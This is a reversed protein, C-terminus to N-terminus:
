RRVVEFRHRVFVRPAEPLELLRAGLEDVLDAYYYRRKSDLAAVAVPCARLLEWRGDDFDPREWGEPPPTVTHRWREVDSVTPPAPRPPADRPADSDVACAFPRVTTEVEGLPWRRKRSASIPMPVVSLALVHPGYALTVRSVEVRAGDLWATVGEKPMVQVVAGFGASPDVWRLVVGGCGAPVECHDHVQLTLRPSHKRFRHLTNIRLDDEDTAMFAVIGAGRTRTPGIRTRM